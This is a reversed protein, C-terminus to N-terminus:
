GARKKAKKYLVYNIVVIVLACILAITAPIFFYGIGAAINAPSLFEIIPIINVLFWVLNFAAYNILFGAVFLSIIKLLSKIKMTYGM